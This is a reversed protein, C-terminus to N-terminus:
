RPWDSGNRDIGARALALAREISTTALPVFSKFKDDRYSLGDWNGMSDRYIVKRGKLMGESALDAIVVEAGNTVSLGTNLDVLCVIDGRVTTTYHPRANM